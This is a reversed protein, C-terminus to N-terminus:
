FVEQVTIGHQENIFNRRKWQKETTVKFNKTKTLFKHKEQM